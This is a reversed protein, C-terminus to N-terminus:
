WNKEYDEASVGMSDKASVKAGNGKLQQYLAQKGAKAALLPANRKVKNEVDLEAGNQLLVIACQATNNEPSECAILLPTNGMADRQEIKAGSKILLPIIDALGSSAAVHLPTYSDRYLLM